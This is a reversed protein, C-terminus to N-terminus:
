DPDLKSTIFGDLTDGNLLYAGYIQLFGYNTREFGAGLARKEGVVTWVVSLDERVLFEKFIDERILLASPGDSHATPDFAVLKGEADLLDAGYGGWLLDLGKIVESAPLRVQFSEDISCDFESPKCSYESTITRTKVPCDQDPQAWGNDGYYPQEFYRAASSWGHEGLFVQSLEPPNPMWHGLFNIGKAWAMFADSDQKRILYGTCAYWFDRREVDTSEQDSPPQQGWNFYGQVNLWQSGDEPRTCRLLDEFKPLNDQRMVWEQPNNPKGWDEYRVAGWWAPNHGDWSTGGRTTRLTCTPDIDRLGVQWAGCYSRDGNDRYSERFQFHDSILAMIEHYAIWQYKKGLREAKSASRGHYGIAFRDFKGFRETSWGLDFVRWLIYRQILQLEFGPPQRSDTEKAQLLTDLCDIEDDSLLAKVDNFASERSSKLEVINDNPLEEIDHTDEPPDATISRLQEALWSPLTLHFSANKLKGDADDFIAWATRVEESFGSILEALQEDASRWIPEDLKISLWDSCTSSSNTGLVYRAFDDDMVSSGIRNRAWELEGSDHAGRSWDPLLPKIEEESPIAPWTSHYPPRIRKVDGDLQVGLYLAREVVGCAYDRLLIHAPPTGVSFVKNYVCQAVEGVKPTDNSRTVVGYAVAYIREAVYADDVAAFQEVLRVVAEFRGTLLNVLSKTARDRLFRNSTTLMWSLTIACLDVTEGDIDDNSSVSSAWDVLRDVAGHSGCTHHLYISWWADRDPMSDRHLRKDLFRANLPHEPLTAVTLIVDHTDCLDHDSRILANLADKTGQTFAGTDRWVLSQRFADGTAWCEMLEPALSVLEHGTREPIQTCMAELLGAAVYQSKDWFFALPGGAAFAAEPTEQDLHADILMKAVIHDAFREYGIFVVENRVSDERWVAEEVLVGESVLGRYLSKEFERGPLLTNIVEEAKTLTLWREGSEVLSKAFAELALQVLANKPNFGLLQALRQNIASLYLNFTATIGHLGRPLRREGIEQLGRCLTKLFLPNRFEPALLPTSPLELGYHVFFTRTADYEHDAFGYHTVPCARNRVEDPVIIEEYSSRVSLLVGIWQSRELHMLFAAMHSPWILRGSGENIADIMVLARCNAAQAAAELAGVFEQASIGALDLQQTAQTWPPDTSVFQQGMLLVTPRNAAVRQKTVDCLLHTKGTGAAGKLLMLASGAVAEAHELAERTNRLESLLTYLHHQCERFPNSGYSRPAHKKEAEGPKAEQERELTLLLNEVDSIAAEAASVQIAINNFPLNGVPQNKVASLANLVEQVKVSAAAAVTDLTSETVKSKSYIFTQLQKRIGKAHAKIRDFFKETRGFAELEAAIPLEFHIEPTYRPGATRVAEELRAQFWAGDFGHVDFWFKLRGAHQTLSLRELLEHRGWYIFEVAMGRGTAWGSWKTVHVDWREKASQRGPIRGDPRDLPICIFYRVLLPHKELATKVSDDLQSWQSDGLGDFYKAQWGWESGDGLVTYCEVGADPTGKREFRSGHPSEVRALQSCLEEFGSASSGDLPRVAKWDLTLTM